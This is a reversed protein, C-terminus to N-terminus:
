LPLYTKSFWPAIIISDKAKKFENLREIALASDNDMGGHLWNVYLRPLWQMATVGNWANGVVALSITDNFYYFAMITKRTYKLKQLQKNLIIKTLIEQLESIANQIQQDYVLNPLNPTSDHWYDPHLTMSIYFAKADLLGLEARLYLSDTQNNENMQLLTMTDISKLHNVAAILDGIQLQAKVNLGALKQISNDQKKNLDVLNQVEKDQRLIMAKLTDVSVMASSDISRLHYRDILQISDNFALTGIAKIQLESTASDHCSKISIVFASAGFFLGTWFTAKIIKLEDV